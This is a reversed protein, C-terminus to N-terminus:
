QVPALTWTESSVRKENGIGTVILRESHALLPSHKRTRADHFVAITGTEGNALPMSQDHKSTGPTPFFLDIPIRSVQEASMRNVSLLFSRHDIYSQGKDGREKLEQLATDVAKAVAQPNSSETINTILGTRGLEIPFMDSADRKREIDALAALKPPADVTASIQHGTVTIGTTAPTFHILWRRTVIIKASKGLGRDVIRTLIWDGHPATVTQREATALAPCNASFCLVVAFLTLFGIVNRRDITLFAM